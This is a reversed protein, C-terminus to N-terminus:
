KDVLIKKDKKQFLKFGSVKIGKNKLKKYLIKYCESIVIISLATLLIKIWSSFALSSIGFLKYGFSVIIIQLIFTLSFTILMIKNKGVGKLISESGLERCNFANFMQFAIFLTFTSAGIEKESVGLINFAFQMFTIIGVFLGNFFIRILMKKSVISSERKVPKNEMLRSSNVELGLTLAPPGDMIVNIWLLQLTNFPANLGLLACVVIIFLASVNISLQFLIFRQLNKYVNRGFSIAKVITSFSDDLLVIDSAEKTIESGSIGMAIGVDAHRIAPADNIGDGTVAVVEGLEKLAKVIRLKILPTSRAVITIKPLIKKLEEDTLKDIENANIVQNETKCIGLQLGISFATIENDGTLMKVKVGANFCEKIAQYVDDRIKDALVCFGDFVLKESDIERHAFCLVRKSQKQFNQMDLVLKNRQYDSLECKPLIVEGAGKIFEINAGDINVTTAMYKISSSFPTRNIIEKSDRQKKYNLKPINELAYVLLACETANGNYHYYKGKKNVFATSNYVINDIIFKNDTFNNVCGGSSCMDIVSMKNQTLTGTKDSCIISVAGTTETAIMKKILANQKSLKIMNLALSIAVITPLGEPVAAVILIICTIFLNQVSTFSVEGSIILKALSFGFM